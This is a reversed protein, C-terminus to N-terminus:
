TLLFWRCNTLEVFVVSGLFIVAFKGSKLSAIERHCRIVDSRGALCGM